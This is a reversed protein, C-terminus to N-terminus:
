LKHWGYVIQKKRPLNKFVYTKDDYGNYIVTIPKNFEPYFRLLDKKTNESICIVGDSGLVARKKQIKHLNSKMDHRYLEYMFDHVTTINIANRDKALRYYSSHFIYPSCRKISPNLYRKVALLRSTQEIYNQGQIRQFLLNRGADDYIYHTIDGPM